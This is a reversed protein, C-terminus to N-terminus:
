PSVVQTGAPQQPFGGARSSRSAWLGAAAPLGWRAREGARREAAWLGAGRAGMALRGVELALRWGGMALGVDGVAEPRQPPAPVVSLRCVAGSCMRGTM